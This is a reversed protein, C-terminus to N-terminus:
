DHLVRSRLSCSNFPVELVDVRNSSGFQETKAGNGFDWRKSIQMVAHYKVYRLKTFSVEKFTWPVPSMGWM